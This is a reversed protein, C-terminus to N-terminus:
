SSSASARGRERAAAGARLRGRRPRPPLRLGRRPRAAQRRPLRREAPVVAAAAHRERAGLRAGARDRPLLRQEEAGARPLRGGPRPQARVRAPRRARGRARGRGRGRARAPRRQRRGRLRPDGDAARHLAPGRRGRADGGPLAALRRPGLRADGQDLRQDPRLAPRRGQRLAGRPAAARGRRGAPEGPGRSRGHRLRARARGARHPRRRRRAPRPVRARRRRRAAREAIGREDDLSRRLLELVQEDGLAQLEYVRCRSLLASNVEFYPNETTAGVLVVLGEEVAPLLTDQQAKNFRHIEDLFFITREGSTQRRHRARELVERVEARGAQM